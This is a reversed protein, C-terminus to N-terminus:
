SRAAQEDGPPDDEFKWQELAEYGAWTVSYPYDMDEPGIVAIEGPPADPVNRPEGADV